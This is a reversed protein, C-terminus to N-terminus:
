RRIVRGCYGLATIVDSIARFYSRFLESIARFYSHIFTRDSLIKILIQNLIEILLYLRDESDIEIM